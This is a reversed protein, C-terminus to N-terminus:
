RAGGSGKKVGRGQNFAGAKKMPNLQQHFNRMDAAKAEGAEKEKATPRQQDGWGCGAVFVALGLALLAGLTRVCRVLQM